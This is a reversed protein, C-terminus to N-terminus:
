GDWEVGFRDGSAEAVPTPMIYVVEDKIMGSYGYINLIGILQSADISKTDIGILTVKARVRPDVIFKTGHHESYEGLLALLPADITPCEHAEALSVLGLAVLLTASISIRM